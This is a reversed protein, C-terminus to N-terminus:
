VPPLLLLFVSCLGARLIEKESRIDDLELPKVNRGDEGIGTLVPSVREEWGSDSSAPFLEITDTQRRMAEWTLTGWSSLTSFPCPALGWASLISICGAIAVKRFWEWGSVHFLSPRRTAAEELLSAVSARSALAAMKHQHRWKCASDARYRGAPPSANDLERGCPRHGLRSCPKLDKPLCWSHSFSKQSFRQKVKAQTSGLSFPFAPSIRKSCTILISQGWKQSARMNGM